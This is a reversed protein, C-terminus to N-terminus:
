SSESSELLEIYRDNAGSLVESAAEIAPSGFSHLLRKAGWDHVAFPNIISADAKRGDTSIGLQSLSIGM